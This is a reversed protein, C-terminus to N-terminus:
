KTTDIACVPECRSATSAKYVMDGGYTAMYSLGNAGLNFVQSLAKGNANLTGSQTPLPTGSCAGNNFLTFTVTGTPCPPLPSSGCTQPPEPTVTAQDVVPVTTQGALDIHNDTFTGDLVLPPGVSSVKFIDTAIVSNLKGVEVVECSTAPLAIPPYNSDGNYTALYSYGPPQVTTFTSSTATCSGAGLGDSVCPKNETSTPTGSCSDNAFRRFTVTCPRSTTCSGSGGQGPDPGGQNGTVFAVDHIVTGPIVSTGTINNDAADRIETAIEAQCREFQTITFDKLVATISQSSRTEVIATPFCEGGLGIATLDLGGEFFGVIPYNGGAAGAKATFAPDLATVVAGNTAACAADAPVAPSTTASNCVGNQGATGNILQVLCIAGTGAKTEVSGTPCKGSTVKNVVYVQINSSGGGQVFNSLILVDGIKHSVAGGVSTDVFPSAHQGTGGLGVPNQLFWFGIQADGNVALRNAGFYVIKHGAVSVGGSMTGPPAVYLAAFAEILDDKDPVSGDIWQWQTIDQEDKSGGGTFISLPSPDVALLAIAAAHNTTCETGSLVGDSNADCPIASTCTSGLSGGGTCTYLDDWDEGTCGVSDGFSSIGPGNGSCTSAKADGDLQFIGEDHVAFAPTVRLAFALTLVLATTSTGLPMLKRITLSASAM